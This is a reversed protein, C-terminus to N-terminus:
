SEGEKSGTTSPPPWPDDRETQFWSATQLGLGALLLLIITSYIIVVAGVAWHQFGPATIWNLFGPRLAALLATLGNDPWSWGTARLLLAGLAAVANRLVILVVVLVIGIALRASSRLTVARRHEAGRLQAARYVAHELRLPDSDVENYSGGIAAIPGRALRSDAIAHVLRANVEEDNQWYSFHDTFPWDDNAVRVGLWPQDDLKALTLATVMEAPPEGQPVPDYRAYLNIWNVHGSIPRNWFARDRDKHKARM